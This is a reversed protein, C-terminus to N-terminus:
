QGRELIRRANELAEGAAGAIVLAFVDPQVDVTYSITCQNIGEETVDVTSLHDKILANPVISYQFRRTASDVTVIDEELTLLSPLTVWRKTGEVRSSQMPFWEHVRAPNGVLSWADDPSCQVQIERRATGM